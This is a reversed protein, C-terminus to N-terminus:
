SNSFLSEFVKLLAFIRGPNRGTVLTENTCFHPTELKMGVCPCATAADYLVMTGCLVAAVEQPVLQVCSASSTCICNRPVDLLEVRATIGTAFLCNLVQPESRTSIVKVKFYMEKAKDALDTSEQARPVCPLM